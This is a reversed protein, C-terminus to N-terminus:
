ELYGLSRLSRELAAEEDPTMVPEPQDVLSPELAERGSPPADRLARQIVRGDIDAPPRVDMLALLTPAVDVIDCTGLDVGRPVRPGHACFVGDMAHVGSFRELIAAPVPEFAGGLGAHGKFEPHFLVIVDPALEAHQGSYLEERRRAWQVVPRGDATRLGTMSEIIRDRVAEYEAGPAVRGNPQRGALNVVVGEAPTYLPFRYADTNTWDIANANTYRAALWNGAREPLKGALRRLRRRLMPAAGV